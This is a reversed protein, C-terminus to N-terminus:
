VKKLPKVNKLLKGVKKSKPIYTTDITARLSDREMRQENSWKRAVVQNSFRLDIKSYRDWGVNPLGQEYFVKLKTLKWGYNSVDGFMIRQDGVRPLIELTHDPNVTIEEILADLFAENRIANVVQFLSDKLFKKDGAGTIVLVRAAYQSSLSMEKGETDIYFSTFPAVYRMVPTRQSVEIFLTGDPTSYVLANKVGSITRVTNKVEDRNLDSLRNGTTRIGKQALAETVEAPTIFHSQLSDAITVTVHRFTLQKMRQETFWLSVGLYAVLLVWSSINLIKRWM